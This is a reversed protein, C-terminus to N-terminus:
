RSISVFLFIAGKRTAKLQAVVCHIVYTKVALERDIAEECSILTKSCNFCPIRNGTLGLILQGHDPGGSRSPAPQCTGDGSPSYSCVNEPAIMAAHKQTMPKTASPHSETRQVFQEPKEKKVVPSKPVQNQRGAYPKQSFDNRRRM